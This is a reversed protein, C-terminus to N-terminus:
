NSLGAFAPYSCLNPVVGGGTGDAGDGANGDGAAGGDDGASMTDGGEADIPGTCEGICYDDCGSLGGVLCLLFSSILVHTSVANM